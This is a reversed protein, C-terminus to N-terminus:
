RPAQKLGYLSKNLKCVKGRKSGFGQPFHMYVEEFLDGHLFANHVDMHFIPLHQAVVNAAVSGLTVLKAIPSFTTTYDLGEKQSFRKDVLRVKYREVEGNAKHKIKFVCKCGIPPKNSPLDVLKCTHNDELAVIALKMADVWDSSQVAEYYSFPESTTSYSTLAVNYSESFYEYTVYNSIPFLCPGSVKSTAVYDKM